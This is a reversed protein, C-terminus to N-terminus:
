AKGQAFAVTPHKVFHSEILLQEPDVDDEEVVVQSVQRAAYWGALIHSSKKPSRAM